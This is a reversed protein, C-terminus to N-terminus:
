GGEFGTSTRTRELVVVSRPNGGAVVDGLGHLLCQVSRADVDRERLPDDLQV